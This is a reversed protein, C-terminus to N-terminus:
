LRSQRRVQPVGQHQRGKRRRALLRKQEAEHLDLGPALLRVAAVLKKYDAFGVRVCLVHGVVFSPAYEEIRKWQEPTIQEYRPTGPCIEEILKFWLAELKERSLRCRFRCIHGVFKDWAREAPSYPATRGDNDAHGKRGKGISETRHARVAGKSQTASM